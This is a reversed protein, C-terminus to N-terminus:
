IYASIIMLRRRSLLWSNSSGTVMRRYSHFLIVRLSHFLMYPGRLVTVRLQPNLGRIVAYKLCRLVAYLPKKSDTKVASKPCRKVQLKPCKLAEKICDNL